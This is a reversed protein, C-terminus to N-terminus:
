AHELLEGVHADREGFASGAPDGIEEIADVAGVVHMVEPRPLIEAIARRSIDEALVDERAEDGIRDPELQAVVDTDVVDAPLLVVRVGVRRPRARRSFDALSLRPDFPGSYDDLLTM